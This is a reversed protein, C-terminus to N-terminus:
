LKHWIFANAEDNQIQNWVHYILGNDQQGDHSGLMNSSTVLVITGGSSMRPAMTLGNTGNELTIADNDLTSSFLDYSTLGHDQSKVGNGLLSHDNYILAGMVRRLPPRIWCIFSHHLIFYVM